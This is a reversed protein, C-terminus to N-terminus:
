RWLFGHSVAKSDVYTGVVTGRDNIGSAMTGSRPEGGTGPATAAGPHDLATYTSGRLQFGHLIMTRDFYMGVIDKHSNIGAAVSGAGGTGSPSAAKPANLTTWHGDHLLFGHRAAKSDVYSGVIDGWVNIGTPYTGMWGSAAGARSADLTTYRGRHLLFGHSVGKRDFWQGVIDGQANIANAFTSGTAGANPDRLTSYRGAHLLFGSTVNGRTFNGVIDGRQNIGFAETRKAKPVDLTTYTGARLLFGHEVGKSDVFSGVVEGQRNIGSATTGQGAHTGAHPANFATFQRSTAQATGRGMGGLLAMVLIIILIRLLKM